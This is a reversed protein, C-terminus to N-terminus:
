QAPFTLTGDPQYVWQFTCSGYAVNSRQEAVTSIVRLKAYHETGSRYLWIQNPKLTDAIEQWQTVTASTLSKFATEAATANGYVGYKYFSDKFNDTQLM